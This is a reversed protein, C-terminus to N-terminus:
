QEEGEPMHRTEGGEVEIWWRVYGAADLVPALAAEAQDVAKWAARSSPPIGPMDIIFHVKM